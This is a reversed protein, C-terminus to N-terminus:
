WKKFKKWDKSISNHVALINHMQFIENIPNYELFEYLGRSNIRFFTYNPLFDYFDKLFVRRFVFHYNMEFQIISINNILSKAGKLVEMEFGETDIKLFDIKEVGNKKCFGYLTGIKVKQEAITKKRFLAKEIFSSHETKEDNTPIYLIREGEEDGLAQNIASIGNIKNLDNFAAINPEFSYVISNPIITKIFKSYEGTNAGVDFIIPSDIYKNLVKLVNNEGNTKSNSNMLGLERHSNSLPNIGGIRFLQHIIKECIRRRMKLLNFELNYRNYTHQYKITKPEELRRLNLNLSFYGKLKM